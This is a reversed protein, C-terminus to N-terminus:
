QDLRKPLGLTEPTTFLDTKISLRVFISQDIPPFETVYCSISRYLVRFSSPIKELSIFVLFIKLVANWMRSRFVM